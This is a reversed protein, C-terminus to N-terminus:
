KNIKTHSHKTPIYTQAGCAHRTAMSALLPDLIEPFWLWLCRHAMMHTSPGLGQHESIATFVGLLLAMTGVGHRIEKSGKIPWFSLTTSVRQFLWVQSHNYCTLTTSMLRRVGVHLPQVLLIRAMRTVYHSGTNLLFSHKHSGHDELWCGCLPEMTVKAFAHGNNNYTSQETHEKLLGM